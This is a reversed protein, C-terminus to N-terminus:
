QIQDTDELLFYNQLLIIDLNDENYSCRVLIYKTYDPSFTIDKYSSLPTEDSYFTCWRMGVCVTYVHVQVQPTRAIYFMIVDLNCLLLTLHM